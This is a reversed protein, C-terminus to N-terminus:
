PTAEALRTCVMVYIRAARKRQVVRTKGSEIVLADEPDSFFLDGLTSSDRYYDEPGLVLVDGERIIASFAAGWFAVERAKAMAALQPIAGSSSVTFVPCAVLQRVQSAAAVRETNLRLVLRGPGIVSKAPQGDKDTFSVKQARAVPSVALDNDEDAPLWMSVTGTRDAGVENLSGLIWDWQQLSCKAARFSNSRFAQYNRYRCPKANLADWMGHLERVKDAPIRFVHVDLNTTDLGVPPQGKGTAAIEGIKVQEWIPREKEQRACGPALLILAAVAIWRCSLM